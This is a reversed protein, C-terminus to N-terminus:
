FFFLVFLYVSCLFVRDGASFDLDTMRKFNVFILLNFWFLLSGGAVLISDVM